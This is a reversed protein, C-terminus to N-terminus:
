VTVNLYVADDGVVNDPLVFELLMEVADSTLFLAGVTVM